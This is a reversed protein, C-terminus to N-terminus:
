APAEHRVQGWYLSLRQLREDFGNGANTFQGRIALNHTGTGRECSIHPTAPECGAVIVAGGSRGLLFYLPQSVRQSHAVRRYRIRLTCQRVKVARVLAAM